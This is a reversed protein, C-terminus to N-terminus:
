CRIELIPAAWKVAVDQIAPMDVLGYLNWRGKEYGRQLVRVYRRGDGLEVLSLRGVAEPPITSSSGYFMVWGDLPSNVAQVRLAMTGSPLGRPRDIPNLGDRAKAVAGAGDSVGVIPVPAGGDSATPIVLGLRRYVEDVSQGIMRALDAAEGPRTAVLGSLRKHWADTGMGMALSVKRMTLRHDALKDTFWKKDVVPKAKSPDKM